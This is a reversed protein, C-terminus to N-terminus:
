EFGNFPFRLVNTRLMKCLLKSSDTTRFVQSVELRLNVKLQPKMVLYSLFRGTKQAQTARALVSKVYNSDM